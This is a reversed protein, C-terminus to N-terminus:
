YIRRYGKCFMKSRAILKPRTLRRCALRGMCSDFKSLITIRPTLEEKLGPEQCAPFNDLNDLNDFQTKWIQKVRIAPSTLDEIKLLCNVKTISRFM